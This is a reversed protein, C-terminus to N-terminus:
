ACHYPGGAVVGAGKITASFGVHFQVAMCPGSSIGSTSLMGLNADLNPLKATVALSMFVIAVLKSIM